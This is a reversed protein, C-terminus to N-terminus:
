VRGVSEGRAIGTAIIHAVRLPEPIASRTSTWRVIQEADSRKLGVLQVHVPSAGGKSQMSYIRGAAKLLRWRERWDPLHALARKVERMDPRKRSVIIVPLGTRRFVEHVDMVNFGAFTLGETMIVRLQGRHRSRNIMEVVRETVDMGDVEIDTRLVGELWRGGRFVAGVLLVSGGSRPEFTGDDIGIVRIEPKIRWFRVGEM